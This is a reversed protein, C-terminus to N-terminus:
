SLGWLDSGPHCYIDAPAGAGISLCGGLQNTIGTTPVLRCHGWTQSGKLPGQPLTLEDEMNHASRTWLFKPRRIPPCFFGGLAASLCGAPGWRLSGADKKQLFHRSCPQPPSEVRGAEQGKEQRTTEALTRRYRSLHPCLEWRGRAGCSLQCGPPHLRPASEKRGEGKTQERVM